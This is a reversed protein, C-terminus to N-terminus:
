LRHRLIETVSQNLPALFLDYLEKLGVGFPFERTLRGLWNTPMLVAQKCASNMMGATGVNVYPHFTQDALLVELGAHVAVADDLVNYAASTEFASPPIHVATLRRADLGLFGFILGDLPM